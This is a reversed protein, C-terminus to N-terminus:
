YWQVIYVTHTRPPPFFHFGNLSVSPHTIVLTYRSSKLSVLILFAAFVYGASATDHSAVKARVCARVRRNWVPVYM